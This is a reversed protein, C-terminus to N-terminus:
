QRQYGFIEECQLDIHKGQEDCQPCFARVCPKGDAIGLEIAGIKTKETLRLNCTACYAEGREVTGMMIRAAAKVDPELSGDDWQESLKTWRILLGNEFNPIQHGHFDM